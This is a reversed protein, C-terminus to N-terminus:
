FGDGVKRVGTEVLAIDGSSDDAEVPLVDLFLSSM